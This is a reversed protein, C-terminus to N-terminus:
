QKLYSNFWEMFHNRSISHQEEFTITAKRDKFRRGLMGIRSMCEGMMLVTTKDGFRMHNGGEIEIYSKQESHLSDFFTKVNEPPILGDNSGIQLQIPTSISYGEKPIARIVEPLIAPALGVICKIRSDERAAILAGLGGMSHGMVGIKEPYIRDHLSGEKNLLYDIASKIGDSWQEPNPLRKSPVTFLFASYGQGALYDGIWSYWEKQAGLGHAFVITLHSINSEEPPSFYTASYTGWKNEFFHTVDEM